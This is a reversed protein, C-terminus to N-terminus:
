GLAFSRNSTTQTARSPNGPVASTAHFKVNFKVIHVGSVKLKVLKNPEFNQSQEMSLNSDGKFLFPLWKNTM